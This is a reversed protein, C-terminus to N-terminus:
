EDSARKATTKKAARKKPAEEVVEAAQEPASPAPL